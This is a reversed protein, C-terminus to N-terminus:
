SAESELSPAGAEITIGPCDLPTTQAIDLAYHKTGEPTAALLAFGQSDFYELVPKNKRTPRVEALLRGQPQWGAAIAKIRNAIATEVGRGMARCSLVVSDVAVADARREVLFAGIIGLDGFRDRAAVVELQWDPSAMFREIDAPRYRKTTVNFQNTKAFLQHVRTMEARTAPWFTLRTELSELYARMDGAAVRVAEREAQEHYQETKRLDEESLAVRELEPLDLLLDAYTSPDKPLHVTRVEPMLQRILECEAPNDDVFVLSDTGINLQAAITQLNAHKPEWNVQRAAFDSWGLPMDTHLRFAEEVDELNNKSCIALLLGRRQVAKIASQFARFAEGVPDGEAIRIGEPGEEGLVGGWLTNDLDLVLCKRPPLVMSAFYRSLLDALQPLAPEAWAIKALLKMRPGHAARRGATALAHDVDVVFVQPDAAYADFLRANLSAYLQAEGHGLKADAIGLHQRCPRWFNGVLLTAGTVSRATEVWSAVAALAQEVLGERAAAGLGALGAPLQPLLRELELSLFIVHPDYDALGLSPDLLMQMHQDFPGVRGDVHAGRCFSAASVMRAFMDLTHNGLYLVRLDPAAELAELRRVIREADRTALTLVDTGALASKLAAADKSAELCLRLDDTM